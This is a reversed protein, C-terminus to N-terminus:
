KLKFSKYSDLFQNKINGNWLNSKCFITVLYLLGKDVIIKATWEGEKEPDHYEYDYQTKNGSKKVKILDPNEQSNIVTLMLNKVEAESLNLDKYGSITIAGIEGTPFINIIGEDNTTTWFEPYQIQFNPTEFVKTNQGKIFSFSLFIFSSILLLNKM